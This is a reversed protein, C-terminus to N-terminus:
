ETQEYFYEEKKTASRASIIRVLGDRDTHAVVLLRIANSLGVTIYREEDQSHEDDIVTVFMPDNFVTVAEGFSVGHKELNSAAKKPTGNSNFCPTGRRGSNKLLM